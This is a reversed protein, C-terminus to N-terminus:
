GDKPLQLGRRVEPLGQLTDRYSAGSIIHDFRIPFCFRSTVQPRTSGGSLPFGAARSAHGTDQVSNPHGQGDMASVAGQLIEQRVWLSVVPQWSSSGAHPRERKSSKVYKCRSRHLPFRAYFLPVNLSCPSTLQCACPQQLSGVFSM